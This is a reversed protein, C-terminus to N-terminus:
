WRCRSAVGITGTGKRGGYSGTLTQVWQKPGVSAAARTLFVYTGDNKYCPKNLDIFTARAGSVFWHAPPCSRDNPDVISVTGDGNDTAINTTVIDRLHLPQGMEPNVDVNSVCHWVGAIRSAAQPPPLPSNAQPPPLDNSEGPMPTNGASETELAPPRNPSPGDSSPSDERAKQPKPGPASLLDISPGAERAGEALRLDPEPGSLEPRQARGLPLVALTKRAYSVAETATVVGDGDADGWGRLAGLVLYSFAPRADRPLPGAFQDAAGASLVTAGGLSHARKTVVLPQLGDAIAKGTGTRGSFCADLVVLTHAQRGTALASAVDSQAVSRAEISEATQQADAGILLGDTGGKNPAGHGIFVFWLTGGPRVAAAAAKLSSLIKERSADHDRVFTVRDDPIKRGDTMYRYWDIGNRAAGPVDPVFIYDEIAVIAAADNSGSAVVGHPPSSLDPWVSDAGAAAPRAPALLALVLGLTVLLHPCYAGAPRCACHAGWSAKM